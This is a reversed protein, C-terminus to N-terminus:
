LMEDNKKYSGRKKPAEVPVLNAIDEIVSVSFRKTM